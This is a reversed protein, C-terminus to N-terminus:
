FFGMELFKKPNHRIPFRSHSQDRIPPTIRMTKQKHILKKCKSGTMVNEIKM